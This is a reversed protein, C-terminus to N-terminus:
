DGVTFRIPISVKAPVPAGDKTAPKFRWKAVAELAPKEFASDSSKEVVPEIVHGKENITCRVSVVGSVGKDALEPPFKPPIMRVAVPAEAGPAGWLSSVAGLVAGLLFARLTTTKM